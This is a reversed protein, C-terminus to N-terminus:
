LIKRSWRMEGDEGGSGEETKDVLAGGYWHFSFLLENENGWFHIAHDDIFYIYDCKSAMAHWWM